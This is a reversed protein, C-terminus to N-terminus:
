LVFVSSTTTQQGINLLKKLSKILLYFEKKYAENYDSSNIYLIPANSSGAINLILAGFMIYLQAHLPDAAGLPNIIYVGILLSFFYGGINFFVILFLSRYVKRMKEDDTVKKFILILGVLGYLVIAPVFLIYIFSSLINENTLIKLIILVVEM